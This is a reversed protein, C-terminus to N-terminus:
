VQLCAVFDMGAGPIKHLDFKRVGATQALDRIRGETYFWLPCKRLDYRVKRIPSRLWHRSPFSVAAGSRISERLARLFGAKDDIYDMVGMVIAFDHPEPPRVQP